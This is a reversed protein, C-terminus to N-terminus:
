DARTVPVAQGGQHLIFGTAREDRIDFVLKVNPDFVARFEHEGQYLLRFPAQGVVLSWLMGDREFVRIRAEGLTFEGTYRSRVEPPTPLNRVEPLELGLVARALLAELRAPPSADGNYLVAIGLDHEPYYALQAAFGNVGGGHFIRRNGALSGSVLGFGYSTSGNRVTPPTTMERAAAASVVRGGHLAVTWSVLNEANACLAGASYGHTMSFPLAPYLGEETSRYGHAHGAAPEDPCYALSHLHLPSALVDHVYEPYAMGAAREVIIGLLFYGTNSYHFGAGPEFLLDSGAARAVAQLPSIPETARTLWDPDLHQFNPIGSTNTLLHRVTVEHNGTPFEPVWRLLPDDLSLKGEEALRVVAAATFQKTVSAIRFVTRADVARGTELEASGYGRSLVMQGDHWVAVQAGPIGPDMDLHTRALSDLLIAMPNAPEPADAAGPPPMLPRGGAACAALGWLAVLSPLRRITLSRPIM